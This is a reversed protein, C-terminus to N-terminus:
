APPAVPAPSDASLWAAAEEITAFSETELHTRYAPLLSEVTSLAVQSEPLVIALRKLGLAAARPLWDDILTQQAEPKMVRRKRSDSLCRTARHERLADLCADIGTKVEEPTPWEGYGIYVWRAESDWHLRVRPTDLYVQISM